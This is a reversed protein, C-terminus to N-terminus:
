DCNQQCSQEFKGGFLNITPSFSLLLATLGLVSIFFYKFKQERPKKFFLSAGALIIPIWGMFLVQEEPTTKFTSIQSNYLTAFPRQFFELLNSPAIYYFWRASYISLEFVKRAPGLDTLGSDKTLSVILQHDFVTLLSLSLIAALVGYFLIKGLNGVKGQVYSKIIVLTVLTIACFVAFAGYQYNDLLTLTTFVGLGLMNKWNPKEYLSVVFYLSFLLWHTSSLSIHYQSHILRYPLFTIITACVLAVLRSQGFKKVLLFSALFTLIFGLAILINYTWAPSFLSTLIKSQFDILPQSPLLIHSPDSTGLGFSVVLNQGALKAFLWLNYLPDGLNAYM